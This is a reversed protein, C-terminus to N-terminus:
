YTHMPLLYFLCCNRLLWMQMSFESTLVLLAGAHIACPTPEIGIGSSRINNIFEERSDGTPNRCTHIWRRLVCKVRWFINRAFAREQEFRKLFLLFYIQYIWVKTLVKPLMFSAWTTPQTRSRCKTRQISVMLIVQIWILSGLVSRVVRECWDLRTVYVHILSSTYAYRIIKAANFAALRNRIISKALAVYLM